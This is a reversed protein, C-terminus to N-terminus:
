DIVRKILELGLRNDVEYDYQEEAINIVRPTVELVLDLNDVKTYEYRFIKGIFPLDGLFPVKNTTNVLNSNFLGGVHIKKGNPVTITSNIRRERTRPIYGGVLDTISSVESSVAVTIMGDKNVTPKIILRIGTESREVQVEKDNDMVVFPVVEGVFLEAEEGNLATTRPNALLKAANNELLWNLTIDFANLQRSFQGINNLGEIKQFYQENPLKYLEYKEGSLNYPNEKDYNWASSAGNSHAPNEAIITTLSNLRSWDLGLRKTDSISVEILRVSIEIQQQPVDLEDIRAQIESFTEPNAYVLLANQGEVATVSGGFAEFAKAIKEADLNNLPIIFSREGVEQRIRERPGVIYTDDGMFRYSLGATTVVVSLALEVSVNTLRVTVRPESDTDRVGPEM